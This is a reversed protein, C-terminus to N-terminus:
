QPMAILPHFFCRLTALMSKGVVKAQCLIGYNCFFMILLIGRDGSRPPGVPRCSLCSLNKQARTALQKAFNIEGESPM